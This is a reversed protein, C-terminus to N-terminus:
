RKVDYEIMVYQQSTLIGELRQAIVAAINKHKTQPNAIIIAESEVITAVEKLGVAKLTNGTEVLDLVNTNYLCPVVLLPMQWDLPALSKLLGRFISFRPQGLRPLFLAM